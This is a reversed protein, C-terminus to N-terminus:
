TVFEAADLRLLVSTSVAGPLKIFSRQQMLPPQKFDHLLLLNLLLLTKSVCKLAM